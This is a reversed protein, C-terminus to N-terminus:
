LKYNIASNIVDYVQDRLLEDEELKYGITDIPEHICIHSIGPKSGYVKGDDWMKEWNNVITVPLIAVKNEIALRFPGNKFSHLVPPYEDGIKGEPFIILSMGKQLREGTKKFAKYSAIKSDRNIPIDVTKFYRATLPNKLLEEKGLFFFNNKMMTTLAFIDLHSTHNACVVYTRRWDLKTKYHYKFYIGSCLSSLSANIKRFKNLYKFHDENFSFLYIFPYVLIFFLVVM